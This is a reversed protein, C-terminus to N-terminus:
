SHPFRIRYKFGNEGRKKYQFFFSKAIREDRGLYSYKKNNNKKKRYANQILFLRLANLIGEIAVTKNM